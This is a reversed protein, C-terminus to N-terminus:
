RLSFFIEKYIHNFINTIDSIPKISVFLFNNINNTENLYRLRGLFHSKGVGPQGQILCATSFSNKKVESLLHLVLDTAESNISKVDFKTISDEWANRVITNIFPNSADLFLRNWEAINSQDM